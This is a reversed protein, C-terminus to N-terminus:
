SVKETLPRQRMRAPAPPAKTTFRLWTLGLIASASSALIISMKSADVLHPDSFALLTIFISMTFGIGALAGAGFLLKWNVGSPLACLGATVAVFSFLVIGMPKGVFLGLMIGHSNNSNLDDLWGEPLPIATNCLAFVPLIFFAVPKHLFRQLEYSPTGPKGDGFPITFALLVGAITAHVGSEHMFHWMAIGPILYFALHRIGLRNFLLLVAFLGLAIGLSSLHLDDTYFVAIVIIAMLDDIVALATLFIKLGIPIRRGLLSMIGIAFAIDTAMPIGMGAVTETGANFAFHISAPVLVGGLAAITPLLAVKFDSLEGVYIERVLELGILLFFIAMLGDNIWLETTYPGVPHKWFALYGPAFESNAILLSVVTCALLISGGSAESKFFQRFLAGNLVPKLVM